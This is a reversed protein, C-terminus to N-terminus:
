RGNSVPYSPQYSEAPVSWAVSGDAVRVKSVKGLAGGGAVYVWGDRVFVDRAEHQHELAEQKWVPEFRRPTATVPAPAPARPPAVREEDCGTALLFALAIARRM